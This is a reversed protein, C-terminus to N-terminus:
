FILGTSVEGPLAQGVRGPAVRAVTGAGIALVVSGAASPSSAVNSPRVMMTGGGSITVSGWTARWGVATVDGAGALWAPKTRTAAGAITLNGGATVTVNSHVSRMGAVVLTGGVVVTAQGVRNAAGAIAQRGDGTVAATSSRSAYGVSELDGGGTATVTAHGSRNGSTAADGGGNIVARAAVGRQGAVAVDGSARNLVTGGTAKSGAVNVAGGGSMWVTGAVAKTGTANISGRGSVVVAASVSASVDGGGLNDLAAPSHATVWGIHGVRNYTSDVHTGVLSWEGGSPKRYVRLTTGQAEFGVSDGSALASTFSAMETLVFGAAVRYIRCFGYEWVAMYGTAAAGDDLSAGRLWIAVTEASGGASVPVDCYVECDPGYTAANWFSGRYDAGGGTAQDSVLQLPGGTGAFLTAYNGSDLTTNARNLDDLIPATPFAM